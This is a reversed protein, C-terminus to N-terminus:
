QAILSEFSVVNLTDGDEHRVVYAVAEENAVLGVILAPYSLHTIGDPHVVVLGGGAEGEPYTAFMWDGDRRIEIGFGTNLALSQTEDTTVDWLTLERAKGEADDDFLVRGDSLVGRVYKIDRGTDTLTGTVEDYLYLHDEVATSCGAYNGQVLRQPLGNLDRAGCHNELIHNAEGDRLDWFDRDMWGARPFFSIGHEHIRVGLSTTSGGASTPEPMPIAYSGSGDLSWVHVKGYVGTGIGVAAVGEDRNLEFFAVSGAPLDSMFGEGTTLDYAMLLGDITVMAYHGELGILKGAEAVVEQDGTDLQRAIVAGDQGRVHWGSEAHYHRPKSKAWETSEGGDLRLEMLASTEWEVAMVANGSPALAIDGWVKTHAKPAEGDRWTHLDLTIKLLWTKADEQGEMDEDVRGYAVTKGDDSWHLGPNGGQIGQVVRTDVITSQGSAITLVHLTGHVPFPAGSEQKFGEEDTMYFLRAGDKSMGLMRIKDSDSDIAVDAQTVVIEPVDLLPDPLATQATAQVPPPAVDVQPTDV